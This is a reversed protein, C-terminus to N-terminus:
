FLYQIILGASISIALLLGIVKFVDKKDKDEKFLVLVGLGGGASLGAIVAGYSIAGQLYLETIAVSAACNPILGIFAAIIPQWFTHGLLIAKFRDAGIYFIFFNVALTTLFIFLFIKATHKIPHWIIEHYDFKKSESNTSHGCCAPEEIVTEHHHGKDDSGKDYSIIHSLTKQNSKRFIFDVLYGAILAVIVKTIILPWILYLKSPQSLIVPIAEDSTSILVALFTGITVLKQTYLAATIVSFGCQPFTGVVAGLVPGASGAKQVKKRLANGFKYEVLEIGIYIILLLPIMKLTDLLADILITNM